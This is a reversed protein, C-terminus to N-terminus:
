WGCRCVFIAGLDQSGVGGSECKERALMGKPMMLVGSVGVGWGAIAIPVWAREREMKAEALPKEKRGTM